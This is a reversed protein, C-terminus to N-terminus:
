DEKGMLKQTICDQITIYQNNYWMLKDAGFFGGYGNEYKGCSYSLKRALYCCFHIENDIKKPFFVFKKHWKSRAEIKKIRPVFKIRM